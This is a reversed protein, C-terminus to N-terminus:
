LLLLLTSHSNWRLVSRSLLKALLWFYVNQKNNNFRFIRQIAGFLLMSENQQKTGDEDHTRPHSPTPKANAQWERRKRKKKDCFRSPFHFSLKRRVIKKQKMRTRHYYYHALIYPAICGEKKTWKKIYCNQMFTSHKIGKWVSSYVNSIFCRTYNM